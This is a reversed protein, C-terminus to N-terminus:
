KKFISVIKKGFLKKVLMKSSIILVKLLDASKVYNLASFNDILKDGYKQRTFITKQDIAKKSVSKFKFYMLCYIFHTFFNNSSRGCFKFIRDLFKNRKEFCVEEKKASYNVKRGTADASPHNTNGLHCMLITTEEEKSNINRGHWCDPFWFFTDGIDGTISSPTYRSNDINIFPPPPLKHSEKYFFTEGQDKKIEDLLISFSLGGQYDIHPNLKEYIKPTKRIYFSAVTYDKGLVRTAIEKIHKNELIKSFIPKQEIIDWIMYSGPRVFDAKDKKSLKDDQGYPYEKFISEKANVLDRLLDQDFISNLNVMGDKYLTKIKEESVM